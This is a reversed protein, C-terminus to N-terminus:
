SNEDVIEEFYNSKNLKYYNVQPKGRMEWDDDNLVVMLIKTMHNYQVSNGLHKAYYIKNNFDVTREANLLFSSKYRLIDRKLGKPTQGIFKLIKDEIRFLLIKFFIKDKIRKIAGM